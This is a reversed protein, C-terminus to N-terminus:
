NESPIGLRERVRKFRPDKRLPDMTPFGIFAAAPDGEAIAKELAEFAADINGLGSHIQMLLIPQTPEGPSRVSLEELIREAKEREGAIGYAWGLWSLYYGSRDSLTV